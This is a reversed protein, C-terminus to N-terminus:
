NKLLNQMKQINSIQIETRRQEAALASVRAEDARQEAALASVRAEDARQNATRLFYDNFDELIDPDLKGL